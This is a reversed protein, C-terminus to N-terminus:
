LLPQGAMGLVSGSAMPKLLFPNIFPNAAMQRLAVHNQSAPAQMIMNQLHTKNGQAVQSQM